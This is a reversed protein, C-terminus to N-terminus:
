ERHRGCVHIIHQWVENLNAFNYSEANRRIAEFFARVYVEKQELQGQYEDAAAVYNTWRVRPPPLRDDSLDLHFEISAARGNVDETSEGAPGVTTVARCADIDPLVMVSMSGPLSLRSIRAAAQRGATDNDLVVVIQRTVRVRALGECFRVLNGAGTFPYNESMDVFDFFDVVDPAVFPLAAKLISSDTSGETVILFRGSVRNSYVEDPALYGGEVVDQFRWEVDLVHNAPNLALLGLVLEVEIQELYHLSEGRVSALGPAVEKFAPDDLVNDRVFEGLDYDGAEPDRMAEVDVQRFAEAVEDFSFGPPVYYDPFSSIFENFRDELRQPGYGLLELRRLMNGLKRVYAPKVESQGDAYHYSATALDEPLFLDSHDPAGYNKGWDLELRGIGLYAYSGM